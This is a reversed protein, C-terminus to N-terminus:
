PVGAGGPSETVIEVNRLDKIMDMTLAQMRLIIKNARNRLLYYGTMVPITIYLGAAAAYLAQGIGLALAGGPPGGSGAAALHYCAYIVGQVTGLLGLMPALAAVLTLYQIRQTLLESEFKAAIGIAEQIVDFGEEVHSFGAMLINAMPGPESQCAELAKFVDGQEMADTVARILGPPMVRSGRILLFCDVTFYIGLLLCTLLGIWDLVGFLGAGLVIDRFRSGNGALTAGEGGRATLEIAAGDGGAAPAPAAATAPGGSRADQAAAPIAGRGAGLVLGGLMLGIIWNRIATEGQEPDAQWGTRV